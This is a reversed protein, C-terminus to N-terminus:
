VAHDFGESTVTDAIGAGRDTQQTVAAGVVDPLRGPGFQRGVGIAKAWTTGTPIGDRRDELTNFKPRLVQQFNIDGLTKVADIMLREQRFQLRWQANTPL